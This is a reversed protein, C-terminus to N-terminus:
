AAQPTAQLPQYEQRYWQITAQLAAELPTAEVQFTREFASADVIQSETYQYFMEVFERMLSDFLGFAQIAFKPLAQIRVPQGIQQEILQAMARQTVIPTVPLLWARGLADEREGLIALGRAVDGIYSYSHPLDINGLLQVPKGTLAAPFVRDGLTSTLVRPGFFDAARGLTVQVKGARHAALYVEVLEARMRGKRTTAAYPTSERMPMGRTEGYVYLTDLVVLRAAAHAAGEIIHAQFRPLVEVQQPYPVNACHYIVGADAVVARVASPDLIDAAVVEVQPPLKAKGSRNVARVQVGAAVLQEALTSGAPGTGFIVHLDHKTSM